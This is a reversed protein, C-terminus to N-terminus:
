NKDNNIKNKKYNIVKPIFILYLSIIPFNEKMFANNLMTKHFSKEKILESDIGKFILVKV